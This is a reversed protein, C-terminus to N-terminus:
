AALRPGIWAVPALTEGQERRAREVGALLAEAVIWWLEAWADRLAPTWAPGVVRALSRLLADGAVLCHRSTVGSRAHRAGLAEFGAALAEPDGLSQRVLALAAVVAARQSRVQVPAFLDREGPAVLFLTTCFRDALEASRPAIRDFSEELLEIALAM